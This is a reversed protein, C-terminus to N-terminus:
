TNILINSISSAPHPLICSRTQTSRTGGLLAVWAANWPVNIQLRPAWMEAVFNRPTGQPARKCAWTRSASSARSHRSGGNPGDTLASYGTVAVTVALALALTLALAPALVRVQLVHPRPALVSQPLLKEEQM